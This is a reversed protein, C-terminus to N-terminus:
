IDHVVSTNKEIQDKRLKRLMELKVKEKLEEYRKISMVDRNEREKEFEKVDATVAM